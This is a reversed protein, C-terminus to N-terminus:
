GDGVVRGLNWGPDASTDAQSLIRDSSMQGGGRRAKNTQIHVLGGNDHSRNIFLLLKNQVWAPERHRREEVPCRAVQGGLISHDQFGGRIGPWEKIVQVRENGRHRHSVRHPDFHIM